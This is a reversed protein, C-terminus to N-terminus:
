AHRDGGHIVAGKAAVARRELRFQGTMQIRCRRVDDGLGPEHADQCRRKHRAVLAPHQVDVRRQQRFVGAQVGVLAGQRRAIGFGTARDM